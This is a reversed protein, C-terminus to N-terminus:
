IHILSLHLSKSKAGPDAVSANTGIENTGIENTGVISANTGVVNTGVVGTMLEDKSFGKHGLSKSKINRRSQNKSKLLRAIKTRSLKM